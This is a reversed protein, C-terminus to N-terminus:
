EFAFLVITSVTNGPRTCHKLRSIGKVIGREVAGYVGHRDTSWSIMGPGLGINGVEVGEDARVVM